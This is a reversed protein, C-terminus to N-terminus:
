ISIILTPLKDKIKNKFFNLADENGRNAAQELLKFAEEKNIISTQNNLVMNAIKYKIEDCDQELCEKLYEEAQIKSIILTENNLAMIAIKYKAYIYGRSSSKVYYFAANDKQIIHLKNEGYYYCEAILFEIKSIIKIDKPRLSSKNTFLIQKKDLVTLPDKIDKTIGKASVSDLWKEEIIKWAEDYDEIPKSYAYFSSFIFFLVFFSIIMNNNHLLSKLNITAKM